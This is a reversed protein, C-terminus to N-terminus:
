KPAGNQFTETGIFKGTKDYHYKTGNILQGNEFYGKRDIKGNEVNYLTFQGTGKFPNYGGKATTGEVDLLGQYNGSADYNREITKRGEEDYLTITSTIKGATWKGQCRIVGNEHYYVQEGERRGHDDYNFKCAKNGNEYYREYTGEWHDVNWFGQEMITEDAFYYTAQGYAMGNVYTVESRLTGAKSYVKWVGHQNGDIYNGERVQGNKSEIRWFGQRVGDITANINPDVEEDQAVVIASFALLVALFYFRKMM